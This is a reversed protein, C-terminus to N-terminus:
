RNEGGNSGQIKVFIIKSRATIVSIRYQTTPPLYFSDGKELKVFKKGTEPLFYELEIQGKELYICVKESETLKESLVASKKLELTLGLMHETMCWKVQKGFENENIEVKTM